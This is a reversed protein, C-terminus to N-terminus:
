KWRAVLPQSYSILKTAPVNFAIGKMVTTLRIIPQSYIQIIMHKFPCGGLMGGSIKTPCSKPSTVLATRLDCCLNIQNHTVLQSTAKCKLGSVSPHHR